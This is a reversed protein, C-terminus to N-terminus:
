NKNKKNHKNQEEAIRELGMTALKIYKPEVTRPQLTELNIIEEFAAKAEKFKNQKEFIHGLEYKAQVFYYPDTGFRKLVENFCFEANSFSNMSVANQGMQIIQVASKDMPIEKISKCSFLLGSILLTTFLLISKKM